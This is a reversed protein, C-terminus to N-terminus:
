ESIVVTGDNNIRARTRRNIWCNFTVAVPTFGHGSAWEIHVGAATSAGGTGMPGFGMENIASLLRREMDAVMQEPHPQGVSRLTAIHALKACYDLSGGIGVGVIVPPCPQSGARRVVELVYGEIEDLEPFTFIEAAAWRGSGLAKPSCIIDVYDAGDLLDWTVLPMHPGAYGREKTFPNTVHALIPPQINKVLDSFGDVVARKIDGNLRVNTGVAIVYTPVGSDSCVYSGTSEATRASTVMLKLTHRGLGNVETGALRELAQKMDDPVKRLSREYLMSTVQRMLEYTVAM